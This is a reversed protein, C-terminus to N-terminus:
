YSRGAKRKGVRKAYADESRIASTEKVDSGFPGVYHDFTTADAGERSDRQHTTMDRLFSFKKAM